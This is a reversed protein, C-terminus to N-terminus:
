PFAAVTFYPTPPVGTTRQAAAYVWVLPAGSAYAITQRLKTFATTATLSSLGLNMCSTIPIGRITATGSTHVGIWYLKKAEFVLSCAVSVAAAATLAQSQTSFIRYQPFNNEDSSYVVMRATPTGTIATCFLTILNAHFTSSPIFPFIELRNIAMAITGLTGGLGQPTVIAGIPNGKFFPGHLISTTKEFPEVEPIDAMTAFDVNNVQAAIQEVSRKSDTSPVVTIKM